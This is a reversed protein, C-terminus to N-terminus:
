NAYDVDDTYSLLIIFDNGITELQELKVNKLEGYIINLILLQLQKQTVQLKHHLDKGQAKVISEINNYFQKM